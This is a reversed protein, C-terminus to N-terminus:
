SMDFHQWTDLPAVTQKITRQRNRAATDTQLVVDHGHQQFAHIHCGERAGKRVLSVEITKKKGAVLRHKNASGSSSSHQVDVAYGMSLDAAIGDRVLGGAIAGEVSDDLELVCQLAGSADLFSSLVSGITAGTHEAKVALGHLQRDAVISVLEDHRFYLGNYTEKEGAPNATGLVMMIGVRHPMKNYVTRTVTSLCRVHESTCAPNYGTQRILAVCVRMISESSPAKKIM